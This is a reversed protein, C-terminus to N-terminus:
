NKGVFVNKFWPFDNYSLFLEENNTQFLQEYNTM